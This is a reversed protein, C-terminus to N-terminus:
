ASVQYSAMVLDMNPQHSYMASGAKRQQRQGEGGGRLGFFREACGYAVCNPILWRSITANRETDRCESFITPLYRKTDDHFAGHRRLVVDGGNM